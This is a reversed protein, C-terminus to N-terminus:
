FPIGWLPYWQETQKEVPLEREMVAAYRLEAGNDRRHGGTPVFPYFSGRKFNYLWYVPQRDADFRFAAALLQDRFGRDTLTLSVMHIATVLDEFDQDEVLIWQFGSEDRWAEIKSNTDEASLHLLDMLENMTQDFSGSQMPRFVVGASTGPALGINMELTIRATSIAFIEETKSQVPKARGFLADFLGM